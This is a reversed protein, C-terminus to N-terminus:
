RRGAPPQHHAPPAHSLGGQGPWGPLRDKGGLWSNYVRAPHPVDERVRSRCGGGDLVGGWGDAEEDPRSEHESTM